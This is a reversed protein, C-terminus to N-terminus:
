GLAVVATEFERRLGAGELGNALMLMLMLRAKDASLTGASLVGLDRLTDGGGPGGYVPATGGTAVRTAVVVPVGRTLAHEIGPVATAPVNGLGTGEVVLGAARTAELIADVLQEEMGTYTKLVPVARDLAEPCDMLHRRGPPWRLRVASPTVFGIPGRGPSTFASTRFSDRKRVWRAAHLEDNVVLVAGLDRADPHHAVAAAGLLNRPGDAAVEDGSRMAAAFAVPKESAVTLDCLFATEEVTDTGHTVVVGAVSADALAVKARRAVELMTPPTVNWGSVRDVEEVHVPGFRALGPVGALLEEAGVVPRVAGTEPDTLSAITGGTAILCIGVHAGVAHVPSAM